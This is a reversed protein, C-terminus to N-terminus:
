VKRRKTSCEAAGTIVVPWYSGAAGRSDPFPAALEAPRVVDISADAVALYGLGPRYISVNGNSLM